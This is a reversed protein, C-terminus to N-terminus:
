PSKRKLHNVILKVFRDFERGYLKTDLTGLPFKREQWGNPAPYDPFVFPSEHIGLDLQEVRVGTDHNMGQLGILMPEPQIVLDGSNSIGLLRQALESLRQERRKRDPLRGCYSSLWRGEQHHKLWHMMRKGPSDDFRNVLLTMLAKEAARDVIYPSSPSLDRM